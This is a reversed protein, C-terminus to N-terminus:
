RMVLNLMRGYIGACGGPQAGFLADDLSSTTLCEAPLHSASRSRARGSSIAPAHATSRETAQDAEKVM